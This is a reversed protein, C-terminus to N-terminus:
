STRILHYRFMGALTDARLVRCPKRERVLLLGKLFLLLWCCCKNSYRLSPRPSLGTKGCGECAQPQM